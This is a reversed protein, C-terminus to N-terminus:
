SAQTKMKSACQEPFLEQATKHNQLSMSFAGFASKKLIIRKIGRSTPERSKADSFPLSDSLYGKLTATIPATLRKTLHEM